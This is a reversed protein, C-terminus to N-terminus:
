LRSLQDLTDKIFSKWEGFGGDAFMAPCAALAGFNTKM